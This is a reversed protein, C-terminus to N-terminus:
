SSRCTRCSASQCETSPRLMKAAESDAEVAAALSAHGCRVLAQFFPSLPALLTLLAFPGALTWLSFFCRRSRLRARKGPQLYVHLVVAWVACALLLVGFSLELRSHLTGSADGALTMVAFTAVLLALFVVAGSLSIRSPHLERDWTIIEKVLPDSNDPEAGELAVLKYLYVASALAALALLCWFAIQQGGDVACPRQMDGDIDHDTLYHYVAHFATAALTLFWVVAHLQWSPTMPRMALASHSLKLTAVFWLLMAYICFHEVLLTPLCGGLQLREDQGGVYAGAFVILCLMQLGIATNQQLDIDLRFRRHVVQSVLVGLFLLAAAAICCLVVTDLEADQARRASSASSGLAGAPLMAVAGLYSCQCELATSTDILTCGQTQWAGGQSLSANWWACTMGRLLHAGGPPLSVFRLPANLQTGPAMGSVHVSFHEFASASASPSLARSSRQHAVAVSLLGVGPMVVNQLAGPPLILQGWVKASPPEFSIGAENRGQALATKTIHRHALSAGSAAIIGDGRASAVALGLGGAMESLTAHASVHARRFALLTSAPPRQDLLAYIDLLLRLDEANLKAM